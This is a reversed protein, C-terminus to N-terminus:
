LVQLINKLKWDCDIVHLNWQENKDYGSVQATYEQRMRGATAPQEFIMDGYIVRDGDIVWGNNQEPFPPSLTGTSAKEM